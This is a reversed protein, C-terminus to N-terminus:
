LSSFILHKSSTMTKKCILCDVNDGSEFFQAIRAIDSDSAEYNKFIDAINKKAVIEQDDSGIDDDQAQNKVAVLSRRQTENFKANGSSASRQQPKQKEREPM